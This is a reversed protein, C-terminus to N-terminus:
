DDDRGVFQESENFGLNTLIDGALTDAVDADDDDEGTYKMDDFLRRLLVCLSDPTINCEITHALVLKTGDKWRTSGKAVISRDGPLYSDGNAPLYCGQLRSDIGINVAKVVVEADRGTLSMTYNEGGCAQIIADYGIEHNNLDTLIRTDDKTM